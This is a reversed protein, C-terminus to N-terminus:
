DGTRTTTHQGDDHDAGLPLEEPVEDTGMRAALVRKIVKGDKVFTVLPRGLEPGGEQGDLRV